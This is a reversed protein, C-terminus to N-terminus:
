VGPHLFYETDTSLLGFLRLLSDDLRFNKDTMMLQGADNFDSPELIM